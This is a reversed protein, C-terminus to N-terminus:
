VKTLDNIAHQSRFHRLSNENGKPQKFIEETSVGSTPEM